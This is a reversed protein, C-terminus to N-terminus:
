FFIQGLESLKKVIYDPNTSKLDNVNYFIGYRDPMFLVTKSSAAKGMLIDSKSDGIVMTEQPEVQFYICAKIVADPAPKPHIVDDASIITDFYNRINLQDVMREIYWSYAFTVIATKIKKERLFDVTKLADDFLKAEKSFIDVGDFYAKKFEDTKDPIGIDKCIEEEKRGFCRQGIEKESWQFGFKKLAMDYAKVYLGLTDVLTGDFDFLAAKIM